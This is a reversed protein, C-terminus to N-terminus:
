NYFLGNRLTARLGSLRSLGPPIIPLVRFASCRGPKMWSVIFGWRRTSSKASLQSLDANSLSCQVRNFGLWNPTPNNLGRGRVRGIAWSDLGRISPSTLSQLILPSNSNSYLQHPGGTYQVLWHGTPIGKHNVLALPRSAQLALVCLYPAGAWV